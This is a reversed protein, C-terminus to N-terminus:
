SSVFLPLAVVPALLWLFYAYTSSLLSQFLGSFTYFSEANFEHVAVSLALGVTALSLVFVEVFRWFGSHQYTSEVYGRIIYFVAIWVITFFYLHLPVGAITAQLTDSFPAHTSLLLAPYASFLLALLGDKGQALGWATLLVLMGGAGLVDGSLAAISQLITATATEM